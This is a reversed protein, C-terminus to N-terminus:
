MEVIKALLERIDNDWFIGTGNEVSELLRPDKHKQIIADLAPKMADDSLAKYNTVWDSFELDIAGFSKSILVPRGSALYQVLKIPSEDHSKEPRYPVLGVKFSKIIAQQESAHYADGVHVGPLDALEKAVSKNYARGRILTRYGMESLRKIFPIDFKDTVFGTFGFDYEPESLDVQQDLNYDKKLLKNPFVIGGAFNKVADASVGTVIDAYQGVYSYKQRVAKRQEETFVNHKSFNDIMDYWYVASVNKLRDIEPIFFPHFDLIVKKADGTSAWTEIFDMHYKMSECPWLRRMRVPPIPNITSKKRIETKDSVSIEKSPALLNEVIHSPRELWFIKEVDEIGEIARLMMLDRVTFGYRRAFNSTRYPLIVLEIM